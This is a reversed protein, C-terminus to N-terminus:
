FQTLYEPLRGDVVTIQPSVSICVTTASLQDSTEM